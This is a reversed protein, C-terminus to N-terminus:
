TKRMIARDLRLSMSVGFIISDFQAIIYISYLKFSDFYLVKFSAPGLLSLYVGGDGQGQTSMRLGSKLILEGLAPQTYHYLTAWGNAACTSRCASMEACFDMLTEPVQIQAPWLCSLTEVSGKTVLLKLACSSSDILYIKNLSIFRFTNACPFLKLLLPPFSSIPKKMEM